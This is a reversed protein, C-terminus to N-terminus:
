NITGGARFSDVTSVGFRGLRIFVGSALPVGRVPLGPPCRGLAVFQNLKNYWGRSSSDQRNARRIAVSPDIRRLGLSSEACALRASLAGPSYISLKLNTESRGLGLM